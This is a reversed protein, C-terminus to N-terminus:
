YDNVTPEDIELGKMAPFVSKIAQTRLLVQSNWNKIIPFYARIYIKFVFCFDKTCVNSVIKNACCCIHFKIKFLIYM